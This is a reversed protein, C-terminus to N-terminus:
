HRGARSSRIIKAREERAVARHPLSRNCGKISNSKERDQSLSGGGPSLRFAGDRVVLFRFGVACGSMKRGAGVCFGSSYCWHYYPMADDLCACGGVSQSRCARKGCDISEEFLPLVFKLFFVAAATAELAAVPTPLKHYKSSSKTCASCRVLTLVYWTCSTRAFPCLKIHGPVM